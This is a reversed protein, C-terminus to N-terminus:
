REEDEKLEKLMELYEIQLEISAISDDLYGDALGSVTKVRALISKCKEEYDFTRPDEAITKCSKYLAATSRIVGCWMVLLDRAELVIHQTPGNDSDVTIFDKGEANGLRRIVETVDTKM